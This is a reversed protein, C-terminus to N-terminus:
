EPSYGGDITQGGQDVPRLSRDIEQNREEKAQQDEEYLEKMIKMLYGRIIIEGKSVVKSLRSGLDDGAGDLVDGGWSPAEGPEVFEWGGQLAGQLRGDQDNIVRLNYGEEDFKRKDQDSLQLKQRRGGFRNTGRQERM